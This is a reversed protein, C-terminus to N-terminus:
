VDVKLGIKRRVFFILSTPPPPLSSGSPGATDLGIATVAVWLEFGLVSWHWYGNMQNPLCPRLVVEFKPAITAM